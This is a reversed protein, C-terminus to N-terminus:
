RFEIYHGIILGVGLIVILCLHMDSMGLKLVDSIIFTLASLFIRNLISIGKKANIEHYKDEVGRLRDYEDVEITKIKPVQLKTQMMFDQTDKEVSSTDKTQKSKTIKLSEEKVDNIKKNNKTM